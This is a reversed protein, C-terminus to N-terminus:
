KDFRSRLGYSFDNTLVTDISGAFANAIDEPEDAYYLNCILGADHAKKIMADDYHPTCFQVRECGYRVAREVVAGPQAPDQRCCLSIHPATRHAEELLADDSITLYAHHECDYKKLLRLVSALLESGNGCDPSLGLNMVTHCSYKQLVEDFTAIPIGRFAESFKSGFDLKKVETLTMDSIKGNGVATRDVTADHLLVPVGDKTIRVDFAVEDAGAAIANGIAYLSNEPATKGMGRNACLRPYLMQRDTRSIASGSPRYKYPRRGDEIYHHHAALPNGFGAPKLFRAHPDFEATGLGVDNMMNVLVDGKPSVILGTGGVPSDAGLSVSSRVVYANTNYALFKSMTVLTDHTDSRQYACVIIVDPDYRAISAYSEYFYCDYCILFGYRVGDITLITPEEHEFTYEKDLEYVNMESPILHQKFYTGVFEGEKSYAMTANRLGTPTEYVGNIFVTAKCRIATEKVKQMLRDNYTRYSALMQEKTAAYCPTNSYEPLVIVDMTDDCKDLLALEEAFLIDSKDIDACYRPQIICAKM